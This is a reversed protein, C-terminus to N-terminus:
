VAVAISSCNRTRWSRAICKRSAPSASSSLTATPSVSSSNPSVITANEVVAGDLLRTGSPIYNRRYSVFLHGFYKEGLLAHGNEYHERFAEFTMGPKRKLLVFVRQMM